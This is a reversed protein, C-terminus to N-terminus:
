LSMRMIACNESWKNALMPNAPAADHFLKSLRISFHLLTCRDNSVSPKACAMFRQAAWSAPQGSPFAGRARIGRKTWQSQYTPLKTKPCALSAIPTITCTQALIVWANFCTLCKSFTQKSFRSPTIFRRKWFRDFASDTLINWSGPKGLVWQTRLLASASHQLVCPIVM